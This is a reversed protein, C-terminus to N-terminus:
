IQQGLGPDTETAIDVAKRWHPRRAASLPMRSIIPPLRVNLSFILDSTIERRLASERRPSAAANLRATGVETSVTDSASAWVAGAGAGAGASSFVPVSRRCSRRVPRRSRRWSRRARRWSRRSSRRVRRWSRRSSRRVPVAGASVVLLAGASFYDRQKAATKHYLALRTGGM